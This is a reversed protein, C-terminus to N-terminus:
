FIEDPVELRIAAFKWGEADTAPLHQKIVVPHAPERTPPNTGGTSTSGGTQRTERLGIGILIAGVVAAGVVIYRISRDGYGFSRQERAPDFQMVARVRDRM